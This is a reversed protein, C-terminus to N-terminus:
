LATRMPTEGPLHRWMVYARVLAAVTAAVLVMRWGHRAWWGHLGGWNM